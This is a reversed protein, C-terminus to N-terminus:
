GNNIIEGQMEEIYESGVLKELKRWAMELAFRAQYALMRSNSYEVMSDGLDAKFELQYETRSRDLAMDRYEQNILEGALRLSNQNIAQWLGLVAIRMESRAQQMDALTQRYRASAAQLASSERDGTYLPVDFYITARWDDRTVGDRAYESM